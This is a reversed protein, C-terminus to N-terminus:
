GEGSNRVDNHVTQLKWARGFLKNSVERSASVIGRETSGETINCIICAGETIDKKMEIVKPPNVSLVM